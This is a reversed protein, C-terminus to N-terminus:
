CCFQRILNAYQDVVDERLYREDIYENETHAQTISGPGWIVSQSELSNFMGGETNYNVSINGNSTTKIGRLDNIAPLDSMTERLSRCAQVVPSCVNTVMPPTPNRMQTVEAYVDNDLNLRKVVALVAQKVVWTAEKEDQGPVTRIEFEITCEEAIKNKSADKDTYMKGQNMTPWNPYFREEKDTIYRLKTAIRNLQGVIAPVLLEIANRGMDPNSSHGGRGHMKVALYIYGKHANIAVMQTPEGIVVYKPVPVDKSGGENGLLGFLRRIGICGIEEDSTFYLAFPAKLESENIRSGAVMAIALFAKMDVAGRGYFRGDSLTLDLAESKPQWKEPDVQVTDMHGSLALIPHDGGKSAILNVKEVKKSTRETESNGGISPYDPYYSYETIKFGRARLYEAIDNAMERTSNDKTPDVADSSTDRSVLKATLQRLEENIDM